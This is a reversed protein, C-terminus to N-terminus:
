SCCAVSTLNIWKSYSIFDRLIECHESFIISTISRAFFLTINSNLTIWLCYYHAFYVLWFLLVVKKKIHSTSHNNFPFRFVCSRWWNSSWVCLLLLLLIVFFFSWNSVSIQEKCPMMRKWASHSTLSVLMVLSRVRVYRFYWSKTSQISTKHMFGFIFYFDMFYVMCCFAFSTVFTLSNASYELIFVLRYLFLWLFWFILFGLRRLAPACSFGTRAFRFFLLDYDSDSTHTLVVFRSPVFYSLFFFLAWHFSIFRRSCRTNHGYPKWVLRSHTSFVKSCWRRWNMIALMLMLRSLTSVSYDYQLSLEAFVCDKLACVCSYCCVARILTQMHM